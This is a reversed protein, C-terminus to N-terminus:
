EPILHLLKQLLFGVPFSICFAMFLAAIHPKFAFFGVDLIQKKLIYNYSIYYIFIDLLLNSCGCVAYRFTQLSFFKRFPPHFFDILLTIRNKLNFSIKFFGFIHVKDVKLHAKGM